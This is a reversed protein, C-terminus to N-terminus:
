VLGVDPPEGASAAPALHAVRDFWGVAVQRDVRAIAAHGGGIRRSGARGHRRPLRDRERDLHRQRDLVLLLGGLLDPSVVLIMDKALRPIAEDFSAFDCLNGAMPGLYNTM